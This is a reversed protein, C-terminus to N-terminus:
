MMDIDYGKRAVALIVQEFNFRTLYEWNRQPFLISNMYVPLM